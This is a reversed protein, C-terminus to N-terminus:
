GAAWQAPDIREAVEYFAPDKSVISTIGALEATVRTKLASTLVREDFAHM